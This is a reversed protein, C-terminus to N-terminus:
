WEIILADKHMGDWDGRYVKFGLEILQLITKQEVYVCHQFFIKFQNQNNNVHEIQQLIFELAIPKKNIEKAKM